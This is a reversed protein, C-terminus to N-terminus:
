NEDKIFAACNDIDLLQHMSAVVGTHPATDHRALFRKCSDKILCDIGHCRCIDYPLSPKM